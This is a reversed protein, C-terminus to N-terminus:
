ISDILEHIAMNMRTSNSGLKHRGKSGDVYLNPLHRIQNKSFESICILKKMGCYQYIDTNVQCKVSYGRSQVANNHPNNKLFKTFDQTKGIEILQDNTIIFTAQHINTFHAFVKGDHIEISKKDWDYKAHYAPYFRNGDSCEEYQILGAIRDNPLISTYELYKDIHEELFLHDNEGYLFIDYKNKNEWITKRCTLPLLQYNSLKIINVKDINHINLPVNSNVIISVNYKEFSKLTNIVIKLYNIQETGYNVLVALVNKKKM